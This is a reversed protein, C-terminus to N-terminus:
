LPHPHPPHCPPAACTANVRRPPPLSPTGLPPTPDRAEWDAKCGCALFVPPCPRISSGGFLCPAGCGAGSALSPRHRSCGGGRAQPKRAEALRGARPRGGLTQPTHRHGSTTQEGCRGRVQRPRAESRSAPRLGRGGGPHLSRPTRVYAGSANRPRWGWAWQRHVRPWTGGLRNKMTLRCLAHGRTGARM